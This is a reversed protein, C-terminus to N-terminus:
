VLVVPEPDFHLNNIVHFRTPGAWCTTSINTKPVHMVLTPHCSSQRDFATVSTTAYETDVVFSIGGRRFDIALMM